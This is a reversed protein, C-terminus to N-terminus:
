APIQESPLPASVRTGSQSCPFRVAACVSKEDRRPRRSRPSPKACGGVPPCNGLEKWNRVGDLLVPTAMASWGETLILGKFGQEM